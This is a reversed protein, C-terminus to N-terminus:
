GHNKIQDRQDQKLWQRNLNRFGIPDEKGDWRKEGRFDHNGGIASRVSHVWGRGRWGGSGADRTGRRSNKTGKNRERM